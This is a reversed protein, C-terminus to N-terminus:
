KEYFFEFCELFYCFSSLGYNLFCIFASRSIITAKKTDQITPWFSETSTCYKRCRKHKNTAAVPLWLFKQFSIAAIEFHCSSKNWVLIILHCFIDKIKICRGVKLGKKSKIAERVCVSPCFTVHMSYIQGLRSPYAYCIPPCDMKCQHLICFCDYAQLIMCPYVGSCEIVYFAGLLM